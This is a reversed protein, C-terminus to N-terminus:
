AAQIAAVTQKEAGPGEVADAGSDGSPLGALAAGQMAKLGATVMRGADRLSAEPHHDRLMAWFLARIDAPDAKGSEMQELTQFIEKGTAEQFDCITNFDFRLTYAKGDFDFTAEGRGRGSM